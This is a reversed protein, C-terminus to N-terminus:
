IKRGKLIGIRSYGIGFSFLYFQTFKLRPLRINKFSNAFFFGVFNIFIFSVLRCLNKLDMEKSTYVKLIVNIHIEITLIYDTISM